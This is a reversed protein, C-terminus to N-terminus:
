FVIKQRQNEIDSHLSRSVALARARPFSRSVIERSFDDAALGAAGTAEGRLPLDLARYVPELVDNQLEPNGLTVIASVQAAPPAIRQGIGAVKQGNVHVSWQGPCYEGPVEGIEAELSFARLSDRIWEAMIKFRSDMDGLPSKPFSTWVFSICEPHFAIARGGATRRVPLFGRDKTAQVAQRFGSSNKDQGAFLVEKGPRYIMISDEELMGRLLLSSLASGSGPSKSFDEQLLRM